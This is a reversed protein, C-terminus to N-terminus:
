NSEILQIAKELVARRSWDEYTDVEHNWYDYLEWRQARRTVDKVALACATYALALPTDGMNMDRATWALLENVDDDDIVEKEVLKPHNLWAEFILKSASKKLKSKPIEHGHQICILPEM